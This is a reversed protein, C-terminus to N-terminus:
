LRANIASKPTHRREDRAPGREGGRKNYTKKNRRCEGPDHEHRSARSRRPSRRLAYASSNGLLRDIDGRGVAVRHFRPKGAFDRLRRIDDIERLAAKRQDAPADVEDVALRDRRDDVPTGLM